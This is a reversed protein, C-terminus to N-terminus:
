RRLEALSPSPVEPGGVSAQKTDAPAAQPLQRERFAPSDVVGKLISEFTNGETGAQRVIARVMPMDTYRLGRGLAFTMVKETTTQIFQDPRALLAARLEAPSDVLTGSSLKGSSDIAAGADLDRDRWAGVVDYNELAFG